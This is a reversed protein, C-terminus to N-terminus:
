QGPGVFTAQKHLFNDSCSRPNVAWLSCSAENISAANLTCLYTTHVASYTTAHLKGDKNSVRVHQHVELGNEMLLVCAPCTGSSTTALIVTTTLKKGLHQHLLLSTVMVPLCCTVVILLQLCFFPTVCQQFCLSAMM